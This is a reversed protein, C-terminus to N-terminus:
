RRRGRGGEDDSVNSRCGVGEGGESVREREENVRLETGDEGM